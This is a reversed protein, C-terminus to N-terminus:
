LLYVPTRCIVFIKTTCTKPMGINENLDQLMSEPTRTESSNNWLLDIIDSFLTYFTKLGLNQFNGLIKDLFAAVFSFVMDMNLINRVGLLRELGYM